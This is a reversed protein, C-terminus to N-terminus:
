YCSPITIKIHELEQMLISAGPILPSTSCCGLITMKIHETPGDVISTRVLDVLVGSWCQFRKSQSSGGVVMKYDAM